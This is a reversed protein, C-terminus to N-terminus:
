FLPGSQIVKFEGDSFSIKTAEVKWGPSTIKISRPAWIDLEPEYRVAEFIAKFRPPPFSGSCDVVFVLEVLRTDGKSKLPRIRRLCRLWDMETARGVGRYWISKRLVRLTNVLAMVSTETLDGSAM